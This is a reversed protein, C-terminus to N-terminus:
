TSIGIIVKLFRMYYASWNWSAKIQTKMQRYLIDFLKDKFQFYKNLLYAVTSFRHKRAIQEKYEDYSIGLKRLVDVFEPHQTYDGFNIDMDISTDTLEFEISKLAQSKEYTPDTPTKIYHAVGLYHQFM